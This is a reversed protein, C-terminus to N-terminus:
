GTVAVFPMAEVTVTSPPSAAPRGPAPPDGHATASNTVHGTTLDAATIRYSATCTMSQGAARTTKPCAVTSLGTLTDTVHVRTLTVNGTNTVRFSYRIVQGAEAFSAPGATKVVKIGPREVAIETTSSPPSIAVILGRPPDGWATATNTFRGAKLDAATIRYSATCTTSQGVALTAM